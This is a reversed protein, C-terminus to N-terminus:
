TFTGEGGAKWTTVASLDKGTRHLNKCPFDSMDHALPRNYTTDGTPPYDIPKPDNIAAHASVGGLLSLGILAVQNINSIKM